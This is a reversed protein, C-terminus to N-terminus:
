VRDWRCRRAKARSIRKKKELISQVIDDVRQNGCLGDAVQLSTTGVSLFARYAVTVCNISIAYMVLSCSSFDLYGGLDALKDEKARTATTTEGACWPRPLTDRTLYAFFHGVKCKVIDFLENLVRVTTLISSYAEM